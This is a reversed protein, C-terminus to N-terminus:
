LRSVSLCTALKKRFNGGSSDDYTDGRRRSRLVNSTSEPYFQVAPKLLFFDVFVEFVPKVVDAIPM